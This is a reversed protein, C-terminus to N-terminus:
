QSVAQALLLEGTNLVPELDHLPANCMGVETQCLFLTVFQGSLDGGDDVARGKGLEINGILFDFRDIHVARSVNEFKSLSTGPVAGQFRDSVDARNSNGPGVAAHKILIAQIHSLLESIGIFLGFELCLVQDAGITGFTEIDVNVSGADDDSIGTVTIGDIEPHDILRNLNKGQPKVLLDGCRRPNGIVDYRDIIGGVGDVSNVGVALRAIPREMDGMRIFDGALEDKSRGTLEKAIGIRLLDGQSIKVHAGQSAGPFAQEIGINRIEIM